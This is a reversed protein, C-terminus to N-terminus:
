AWFCLDRLQELCAANCREGPGTAQEFCLMTFHFYVHSALEAQHGATAASHVFMCLQPLLLCIEDFCRPRQCYNEAAVSLIESTFCKAFSFISSLVAPHRNVLGPM